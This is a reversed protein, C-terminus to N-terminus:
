TRWRRSSCWPPCRAWGPGSRPAKAATLRASLDGDTLYPLGAAYADQRARLADNFVVRACGFARVLAACQDPTPSLRYNYRLQVDRDYKRKIALYLVDVGLM